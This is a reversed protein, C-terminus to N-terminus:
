KEEYGSRVAWAKYSPDYIFTNETLFLFDILVFFAWSVSLFIWQLHYNSSLPRCCSFVSLPSSSVLTCPALTVVPSCRIRRPTTMPRRTRARQTRQVGGTGRRGDVRRGGGHVSRSAAAFAFLVLLFLIFLSIKRRINFLSSMAAAASAAHTGIVVVLSSVCVLRRLLCDAVLRVLLCVCACTACM